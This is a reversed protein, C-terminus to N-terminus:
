TPVNRTPDSKMLQQTEKKPSWIQSSGIDSPHTTQTSWRPYMCPDEFCCCDCNKEVVFCIMFCMNVYQVCKLGHISYIYIHLYIITYSPIQHYIITYSPIHHYIIYIITYSPIHHYIIYTHDIYLSVFFCQHM